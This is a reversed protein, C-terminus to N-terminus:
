ANSSDWFTTIGDSAIYDKTGDLLTIGYKIALYSEIRDREADTV